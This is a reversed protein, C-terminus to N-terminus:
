ENGAALRLMLLRGLLAITRIAGRLTLIPLIALIAIVARGVAKRQMPPAPTMATRAVM